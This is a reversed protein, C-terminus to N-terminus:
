SMGAMNAENLLIPERSCSALDPSSRVHYKRAKGNELHLAIDEWAEGRCTEDFEGVAIITASHLSESTNLDDIM